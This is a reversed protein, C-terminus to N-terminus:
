EELFEEVAEEIIEILEEMSNSHGSLFDWLEGAIMFEDDAFYNATGILHNM